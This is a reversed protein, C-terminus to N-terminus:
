GGSGGRERSGSRLGTLSTPSDINRHMRLPDVGSGIMSSRVADRVDFGVHVADAFGRAISQSRHEGFSRRQPSSTQLPPEWSAAVGDALPLTFVSRLDTTSWASLVDCIEGIWAWSESPLYVVIADSRPYEFSRSLIKARFAVREGDAFDLLSAWADVAASPSDSAYYIRLLNKPNGAGAQGTYHFYGMSMYPLVTQVKALVSSTGVELCRESPFFAQLGFYRAFVGSPDSITELLPLREYTMTRPTARVIRNEMDPDSRVRGPEPASAESRSHFKGYIYASLAPDVDVSTSSQLTEDGVVVTGRQADVHVDDFIEDLAQDLLVRRRAIAPATM